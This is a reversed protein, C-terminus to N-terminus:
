QTNSLVQAARNLADALVQLQQRIKPRVHANEPYAAHMAQEHAYVEALTFERKGITRVASLVLGAWGRREPKLSMAFVVDTVSQPEGVLELEAQNQIADAIRAGGGIDYM